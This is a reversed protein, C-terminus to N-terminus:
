FSFSVGCFSVFRQRSVNSVSANSSDELSQVNVRRLRNADMPVLFYVIRNAYHIAQSYIIAEEQNRMEKLENDNLWSM